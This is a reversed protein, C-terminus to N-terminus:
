KEKINSIIVTKYDLKKYLIQSTSIKMFDTSKNLTSVNLFKFLM